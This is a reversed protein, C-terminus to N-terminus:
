GRNPEEIKHQCEIGTCLRYDPEDIGVFHLMDSGCRPCAPLENLNNFEENDARAGAPSRFLRETAESCISGQPSGFCFDDGVYDFMLQGIQRDSLDRLRRGVDGSRFFSEVVRTRFDDSHLRKNQGDILDRITQDSEEPVALVRM